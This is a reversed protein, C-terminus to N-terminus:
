PNEIHVLKIIPQIPQSSKVVVVVPKRFKTIPVVHEIPEVQINDIVQDLNPKPKEELNSSTKKWRWRGNQTFL